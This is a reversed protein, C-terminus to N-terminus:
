TARGEMKPDNEAAQKMLIDCPFATSPMLRKKM